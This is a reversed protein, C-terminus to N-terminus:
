GLVRVLIDILVLVSPVSVGIYFPKMPIVVDIKPAAKAGDPTVIVTESPHVNIDPMPAPQVTIAPSKMEPVQVNIVPPCQDPAHLNVIPKLEVINPEGQEIVIKQDRLAQAIEKLALLMPGFDASM